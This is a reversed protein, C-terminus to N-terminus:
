VILKDKHKQKFEQSLNFNKSIYNWDLGEKAHADIFQENLYQNQSIWNWDLEDRWRKIFEQSFKVRARSINQWGIQKKFEILYEQNVAENRLIINFWDYNTLHKRQQRIFDKSIHYLNAIFYFDIYDAFERYFSESVHRGNYLCQMITSSVQQMRQKQTLKQNLIYGEIKKRIKNDSFKLFNTDM